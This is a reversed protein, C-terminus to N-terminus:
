DIFGHKSLWAELQQDRPETIMYNRDIGQPSKGEPLPDPDTMPLIQGPQAIILTPVSLFGTWNRVRDRAIPDKDIYIERHPVNHESLVRKAITVFPCGLTRTYMVLEKEM